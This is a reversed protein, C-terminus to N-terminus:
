RHSNIYKKKMKEEEAIKTKELEELGTHMKLQMAKLEQTQKGKLQTLCIDIKATRNNQFDDEEVVAM